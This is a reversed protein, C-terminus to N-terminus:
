LVTLADAAIPAQRYALGLKNLFYDRPMALPNADELTHGHAEYLAKLFTMYANGPELVLAAGGADPRVSSQEEDALTVAIVVPAENQQFALNRSHTKQQAWFYALEKSQTLFVPDDSGISSHGITKLLHQQRSMLEADGAGKLGQQQISELLGSATGHYWINSVRFGDESLLQQTDQFQSPTSETSM